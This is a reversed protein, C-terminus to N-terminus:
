RATDIAQSESLFRTLDQVETIAPCGLLRPETTLEERVNDLTRATRLERREEL